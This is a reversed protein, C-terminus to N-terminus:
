GANANKKLAEIIASTTDETSSPSITSWPGVCLDQTRIKGERLIEAVSTKILKGARSIKKDHHETGLWELLMSLALISAVPNASKTGYYKPASGHVPEFVGHKKGINGAPAVGLGGQVAAGLDTIIDGFENPAVVVNYYEPKRLCWQTWADVYAYDKEIAPYEEAVENFISRFLQCGALLNSKDVCTVRKIGDKPAGDSMSALQFAYRIVRESGKRTIVRTDIALESIGGRQLTGRTPSYLGETNERVITMDIDDPGKGSLPTWVGEYLKVPRVNAFLDLDMRLGIVISYGALNGDPLRVSNGNDKVAGIAGLLIADAEKRTFDEAEISWERGERLYYEGGCEFKHLDMQFGGVLNEVAQLVRVAQPVVERGIGDGPLVSIKYSRSM